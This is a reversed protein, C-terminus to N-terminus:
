WRGTGFLLRQPLSRASVGLEQIYDLKQILGEFDGVGDNNSDHFAKIHTQYILADKYWLPNGDEPAAQPLTRTEALTAPIPANM